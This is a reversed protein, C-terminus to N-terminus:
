KKAASKVTYTNTPIDRESACHIHPSYKFSCDMLKADKDDDRSSVQM